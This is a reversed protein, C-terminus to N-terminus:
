AHPRRAGRRRRRRALMIRYTPAGKDRLTEFTFVVDEATIPEGDAFRAEPRMHFIVWSRDEPYELTEAVLGYATDPEDASGVLLSDYLLGLGQAPEGKLIFANLSDFTQSAGTGRFSM